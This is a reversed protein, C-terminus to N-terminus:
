LSIGRVALFMIWQYRAIAVSWKEGERAVIFSNWACHILIVSVGVAAFPNHINSWLCILLFFSLRQQWNKLNWGSQLFLLTLGEFLFNFMHPRIQIRGIYLNVLLLILTLSAVYSKTVRVFYAFWVSLGGVFTVAIFIRAGPLGAFQNIEYLAVEFLWNFTKWPRSPDISSFLDTIPLQHHGAIWQGVRLHFWVDYEWIPQLGAVFCCALVVFLIFAATRKKFQVQTIM